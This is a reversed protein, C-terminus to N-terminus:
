RRWFDAFAQLFIYELEVLMAFNPFTSTVLSWSLSLSVPYLRLCTFLYNALVIKGSCDLPRSETLYRFILSCINQVIEEIERDQKRSQAASRFPSFKFKGPAFFVVVSFSPPLRLISCFSQLRIKKSKVCLMGKSQLALIPESFWRNVHKSKKGALLDKTSIQRSKSKWLECYKDLQLDNEM